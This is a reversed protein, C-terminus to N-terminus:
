RFRDTLKPKDLQNILTTAKVPSGLIKKYIIYNALVKKGYYRAQDNDVMELSLYPEYKGVNFINKRILRRTYGIGANYAYAVFLPHYLHKNLYSLHTNAFRISVEPKFMDELTINEGRQKAIHKVLFPMFQMMGVAFSSSVSAPIFRSEQRAIAYILAQRNVPLKSILNAYPTPFYQKTDKTAKNMVYYYYAMTPISNYSKALSYLNYKKSFIKKKLRAWAIPDTIDINATTNKIALKPPTPYPKNLFDLAVFKYINYDYSNALKNLYARNKTAMYLWFIANDAYFRSRANYRASNFFWAAAKTNNNLLNKYGLMMLNKYTIKNGTTPNTNLIISKLNTLKERFARFIFQNIKKDQLFAKYISTDFKKNLLKRNQTGALTFLALKDKNSLKLWSGYFDGSKQLSSILKRYKTTDAKTPKYVRKHLRLATKKNYARNLKSNIHYILKSAKLAQERTTTPSKLFKWIYFDREISKPMNQLQGLSLASSTTSVIAVTYIINKLIKL